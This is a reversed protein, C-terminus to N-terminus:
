VGCFRNVNIGSEECLKEIGDSLLVVRRDGLFMVVWVAYVPSTYGLDAPLAVPAPKSVPAIWGYFPTLSFVYFPFYFNRTLAM